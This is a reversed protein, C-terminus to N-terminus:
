QSPNRSCSKFRIKNQIKEGHHDFALWIGRVVASGASMPSMSKLKKLEAVAKEKAEKSLKTKDM